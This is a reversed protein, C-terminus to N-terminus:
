ALGVRRLTLQQLQQALQVDHAQPNPSKLPWGGKRDAKDPYIGKQSFYAGNHKPADDALLCHLTTQAGDDNDILDIIPALPVMLVNQVWAPMVRAALNSRVWGPHVSFASLGDSGHQRALEKAHLVNALKSQAYSKWPDYPRTDFDLDQLDIEGTQGRADVHFCSSVNVIHPDDAAKLAPLLLETLLVHGHHNVGLQAEFGDATTEKGGGMIGANNVLGQLASHRANVQSAFDRVSGLKGLDLAIVEFSGPWDGADAMATQGAAVRRCGMVVHAGQQVLQRTTALGIGSNAGTVVYTRGALNKTLLAPDCRLTKHM